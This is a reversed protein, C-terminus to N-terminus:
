RSPNKRDSSYDKGRQPTSPCPGGTDRRKVQVVGSQVIAVQPEDFWVTDPIKGDAGVKPQIGIRDCGNLFTTRGVAIGEYGTVRDKVQDGLNIEGM